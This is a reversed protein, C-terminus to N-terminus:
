ATVEQRIAANRLTALSVIIVREPRLYADLCCQTFWVVGYVGFLTTM